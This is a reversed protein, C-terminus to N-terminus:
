KSIQAQKNLAPLGCNPNLANALSSNDTECQPINNQL